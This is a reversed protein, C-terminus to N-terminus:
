DFFDTSLNTGDVKRVIRGQQVHVFLTNGTPKLGQIAGSGVGPLLHGQTDALEKALMVRKEGKVDSMVLVDLHHSQAQTLVTMLGPGCGCDTHPYYILLTNPHSAWSWGPITPAQLSAELMYWKVGLAVTALSLVVFLFPSNMWQSLRRKIGLPCAAKKEVINTTPVGMSVGADRVVGYVLRIFRSASKM